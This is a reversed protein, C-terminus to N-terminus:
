IFNWTNLRSFVNLTFYSIVKWNASLYKKYSQKTVPGYSIFHDLDNSISLQWFSKLLHLYQNM